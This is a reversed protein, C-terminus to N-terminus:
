RGCCCFGVARLLPLLGPVGGGLADDDGDGNAANVVCAAAPLFLGLLLVAVASCHVINHFLFCLAFFLSAFVCVCVRVNLFLVFLHTYIRYISIHFPYLGHQSVLFLSRPIWWPVNQRDITKRERIYLEQSRVISSTLLFLTRTHKKYQYSNTGCCCCCALPSIPVLVFPVFLAVL